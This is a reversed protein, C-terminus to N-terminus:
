QDASFPYIIENDNVAFVDSFWFQEFDSKSNYAKKIKSIYNKLAKNSPNFQIFARPYDKQPILFFLSSDFGSLNLKRLKSMSFGVRDFVVIRKYRKDNSLLLSDSTKKLKKVCPLCWLGTVYVITNNNRSIVQLDEVPLDIQSYGDGALLMLLAVIIISIKKM